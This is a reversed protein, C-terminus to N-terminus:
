GKLSGQKRLRSKILQPISVGEKSAASKIQDYHEIEENRWIIEVRRVPEMAVHEYGEPSAWFCAKCTEEEHLSLFNECHECSWSKSRQSSADLLMFQDPDLDSGDGGIEYPVRHDIQLYREDLVETTIADRPGYLDILERKFQKSFARRGGIRGNKIRSIDDFTYAGIQRGTKFSRVLTTLLPIGNERVDRIARPPHDYGYTDSLDESTIIGHKLIHDIVTRARKATVKKCLAVLEPKM